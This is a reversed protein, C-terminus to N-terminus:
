RGHYLSLFAPCIVQCQPSFESYKGCVARFWLDLGNAREILAKEDLKIGFSSRKFTRPFPPLEKSEYFSSKPAYSNRKTDTSDSMVSMSDEITGVDIGENSLNLALQRYDKFYKM